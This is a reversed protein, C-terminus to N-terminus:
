DEIEVEADAAGCSFCEFGHFCGGNLGVHFFVAPKLCRPCEDHWEKRGM